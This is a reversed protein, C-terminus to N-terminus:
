RDMWGLLSVPLLHTFCFSVVIDDNNDHDDDVDQGPSGPLELHYGLFFFVKGLM